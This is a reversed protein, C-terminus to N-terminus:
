LDYHILHHLSKNEQHYLRGVLSLYKLPYLLQLAHRIGPHDIPDVIGEEYELGIGPLLDLAQDEIPEPLNMSYFGSHGAKYGFLRVHM